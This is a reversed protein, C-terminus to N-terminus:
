EEDTKNEVGNVSKSFIESSEDYVIAWNNDLFETLPETDPNLLCQFYEIGDFYKENELKIYQM